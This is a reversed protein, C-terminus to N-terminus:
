KFIKAAHKQLAFLLLMGLSGSSIIEGAGVTIVLYWWADTLGYGYPSTLVYPVIVANALITPVPVLWKWKRLLYGGAAGILSALSGVFIDLACCGTLLNSLLCGIYLGPIAAPTFFPLITLMESLRIQIAGSALGFANALFTLIVYLAAIAAAQTLFTVKQNKM